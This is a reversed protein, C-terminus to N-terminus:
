GERYWNLAGTWSREPLYRWDAAEWFQGTGSLSLGDLVRDLPVTGEVEVGTRVGGPLLAADRDFPLGFPALASAETRVWATSLWGGRWEGRVGARLGTREVIRVPEFPPRLEEADGDDEEGNEGDDNGPDGEGNEGNEGNEPPAMPGPVVFPIGRRGNEAQAFLSFGGRPATWGRLSWGGTSAQASPLETDRGLRADNSWREADFRAEVGGVGDLWAMTGGELRGSPWGLGSQVAGGAWSTLPGTTM